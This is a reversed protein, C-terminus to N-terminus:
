DLHVARIRSGLIIEFPCTVVVLLAHFVSLFDVGRHVAEEDLVLVQSSLIDRCGATADIHLKAEKKGRHLKIPPPLPYVSENGEM